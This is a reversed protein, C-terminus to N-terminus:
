LPSSIERLPSPPGVHRVRGHQPRLSCGDLALQRYPLARSASASSACPAPRDRLGRDLLGARWRASAVGGRRDPRDPDDLPHPHLLRRIPAEDDGNAGLSGRAYGSRSWSRWGGCRKTSARGPGLRGARVDGRDLDLNAGPSSSTAHTSETRAIACCRGVSGPFCRGSSPTASRRSRASRAVGAPRAAGGRAARRRAPASGRVPSSGPRAARHSSPSGARSGGIRHSEASSRRRRSASRATLPIDRGARRRSRTRSGGPARSGTRVSALDLYGEDIGTREVRPVVEEVCAWVAQSYQRYLVHRPRLFVVDRCRRLAEASSMASHIGFRRAVYNATAVVGRGRPDGGVVLPRSRM